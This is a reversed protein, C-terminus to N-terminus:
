FSFDWTNRKKDLQEIKSLHNAFSKETVFVRCLDCFVKLKSEMVSGFSEKFRFEENFRNLSTNHEEDFKKLM